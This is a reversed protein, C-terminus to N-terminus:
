RAWFHIQCRNVEVKRGDGEGMEETLGGAASDGAEGAGHPWGM